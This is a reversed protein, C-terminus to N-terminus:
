DYDDYTPEWEPESEHEADERSRVPAKDDPHQPEYPWFNIRLSPQTTWLFGKTRLSVRLSRETCLQKLYKLLQAKAADGRSLNTNFGEINLQIASTVGPQTLVSTVALRNSRSFHALGAFIDVVWGLPEIACDYGEKEFQFTIDPDIYSEEFITSRCRESLSRITTNSLFEAVKRKDFESGKHYHIEWMWTRTVRGVFRLLKYYMIGLNEKDDRGIVSHRPDTVSWHLVDIRLSGATVIPVVTQLLAKAAETRKADGNIEKWQIGKTRISTVASQVSERLHMLADKPGSLCGIAWAIKNKCHGDDLFAQYTPEGTLEALLVGM